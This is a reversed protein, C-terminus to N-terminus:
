GRGAAKAAVLAAGSQEANVGILSGVGAIHLALLRLRVQETEGPNGPSVHGAIWMATLDALVAGVLKPDQGALLPSIQKVITVVRDLRRPKTDFSDPAPKPM